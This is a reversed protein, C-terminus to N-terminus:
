FIHSSLFEHQFAICIKFSMNTRDCSGIELELINLGKVILISLLFLVIVSSENYLLAYPWCICQVVAIIM